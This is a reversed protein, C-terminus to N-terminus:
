AQNEERKISHWQAVEGFEFFGSMRDRAYLCLPEDAWSLVQGPFRNDLVYGKETECVAHYPNAGSGPETWCLVVRARIGHDALGYVAAFAHGDCDDHLEGSRIQEAIESRSRWYDEPDRETLKDPTYVFLRALFTSVKQAIERESLGPAAVPILM